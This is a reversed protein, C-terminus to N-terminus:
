KNNEYLLGVVAETTLIMGAISAANELTIRAVKLPDIIGNYVLDQVQGTKGNYGINYSSKKVQDIISINKPFFLKQCWNQKKELVGSNYMIQLQPHQLTLKIIEVGKSFDGLINLYTYKSLEIFANYYAKGSGAVIGEEMAARTANLADDVRDKKQGVELDSMGGVYIVGVGGLLNALREKLIEKPYEEKEEEIQNRLQLVREDVKIKDGGAGILVTSDKKIVVKECSGLDKQVNVATLTKGNEESIITAGTFIALDQMKDKKDDRFGPNYIVGIKLNQQVKNTVLTALAEGEMFDCIILLPIQNTFCYGVTGSIDSWKSIKKDTILVKCNNLEVETQKSNNVFVQSIYGRDKVQIGDVHRYYTEATRSEDISIVGDKTAKIMAEGILKGLFEDNNASITAISIIKNMDGDIPISINKLAEVAILVAKDIGKKLEVPNAGEKIAKLGLNLISQAFITATTSGDGVLEVTKEAVEKIMESGMNEVPDKLHIHKSVTWGDKTIHTVGPKVEIAVNRGNPGLTVKVANANKDIGVQLRERADHSYFINEEIM